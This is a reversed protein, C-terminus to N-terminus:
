WWVKIGRCWYFRACDLYMTLTIQQIPSSQNFVHLSLYNFITWRSTTSLIDIESPELEHKFWGAGCERATSRRSVVACCHNLSLLHVFTMMRGAQWISLGAHWCPASWRTRLLSALSDVSFIFTVNYSLYWVHECRSCCTTRAFRWPRSRQWYSWTRWRTILSSKLATSMMIGPSPCHLPLNYLPLM